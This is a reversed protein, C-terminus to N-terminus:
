KGKLLLELFEMEAEKVRITEKAKMIEQKARESGYLEQGDKTEFFQIAFEMKALLEVGAKYSDLLFNERTTSELERLEKTTHKNM